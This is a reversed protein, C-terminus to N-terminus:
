EFATPGKKNIVERERERKLRKDWRSNSGSDEWVVYVGKGEDGGEEEEWESANVDEYSQYETFWGFGFTGDSGPTFV